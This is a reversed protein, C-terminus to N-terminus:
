EDNLYVWAKAGSRLKALVRKYGAPEYADAHELEKKTVAFLIGEVVDSPSNTFQLNRHNATGSAAVFAQDEIRIMTLKYGILIDRKGDLKRGFTSLQVEESQLTGYSFLNETPSDDPTM